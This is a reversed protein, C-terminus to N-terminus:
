GSMVAVASSAVVTGAFSDTATPNVGHLAEGTNVVGVPDAPPRSVTVGHRAKPLPLAGAHGVRRFSIAIVRRCCAAVASAGRVVAGVLRILSRGRGGVRTFQTAVHPQAYGPRTEAGQRLKPIALEVTGARTDWERARYGNRQNAREPSREGWDAGCVQDAQASMMANALSTIMEQLVDSSVSASAPEAVLQAPDARRGAPSGRRDPHRTAIAWYGRGQRM